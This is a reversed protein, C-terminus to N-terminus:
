RHRHSCRHRLPTRLGLLRPTTRYRPPHAIWAQYSKVDLGVEERVEREVAEVESEGPEVSGGPFVWILDGEPQRRRVLLVKDKRIIVAVVIKNAM